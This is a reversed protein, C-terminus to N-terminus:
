RAGVLSLGQATTVDFQGTVAATILAQRREALLANASELASKACHIDAIRMRLDDVRRDADDPIPIRYNALQEGTLHPITALNGDADFVGASKALRLWYMLWEVSLGNARRVRHLSKQYFCEFRGDWVAAEAVGAGGECVLLDGARVSYRRREEHAFAMTALDSTDVEYWHVNANRLYTQQGDASSREANLMKGLQVDFYAYVPGITWSGPVTPLWRWGTEYRSGAIDRGGLQEAIWALELEALNAAQARRRATLDDIRATEADLFDAIRRQEDKPTVPIPVEYAAERSLGPVGVDQSTGRLDVALLVYYLWRLDTDALIPTVAYATDIVFCNLPEWHVTGYSGKRGVVIVPGPANAIGHRGSRGGSGIVPVEGDLRVSDALADGYAFRAIRKLSVTESM